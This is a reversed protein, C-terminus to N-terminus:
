AQKFRRWYGIVRGTFMGSIITAINELILLNTTGKLEPHMGYTAGLFYRLSFISMSLILPTWNGAIEILNRDFKLNLKRVTLSGLFIGISICIAWLYINGYSINAYISWILMILPMILLAKWSVSYTKRSKLGGWILYALLPWVYIPTHTIIQIM